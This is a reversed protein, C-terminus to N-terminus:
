GSTIRSLESGIDIAIKRKSKEFYVLEKNEDNGSQEFLDVLWDLLCSPTEKDLMFEPNVYFFDKKKGIIRIIVNDFMLESLAINMERRTYNAYACLDMFNMAKGNLEVRNTEPNVCGSILLFLQVSITKRREDIGYQQIINVMCDVFYIAIFTDLVNIPSIQWNEECSKCWASPQKGLVFLTALVSCSLCNCTTKCNMRLTYRM